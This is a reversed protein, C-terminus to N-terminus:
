RLCLNWHSADSSRSITVGNEHTEHSNSTTSTTITRGKSKGGPTVAVLPLDEHGKFPVFSPPVYESNELLCPSIQNRVDMLADSVEELLAMSGNHSGLYSLMTDLDTALRKLLRLSPTSSSNMAKVALLLQEASLIWEEEEKLIHGYEMYAKAHKNGCWDDEAQAVTYELLVVYILKASEVFDLVFCEHAFDFMALLLKPFVWNTTGNAIADRFTTMMQYFCAAMGKWNQDSLDNLKLFLAEVPLFALSNDEFSSESFQSIFSVLASCLHYTAEELRLSKALILGLLADVETDPYSGRVRRCHHEADELNENRELFKALTYEQRLTPLTFEGHVNQYEVLTKMLSLLKKSAQTDLMTTEPECETPTHSDLLFGNEACCLDQNSVQSDKEQSLEFHSIQKLIQRYRALINSGERFEHSIQYPSWPRNTDNLHENIVTNHLSGSLHSRVHTNSVMLLELELGQM